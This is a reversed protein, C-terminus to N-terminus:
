SHSELFFERVSHNASNKPSLIRGLSTHVAASCVGYKHGQSSPTPKEGSGAKKEAAAGGVIM